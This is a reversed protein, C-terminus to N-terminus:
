TILMISVNNYMRAADELYTRLLRVAAEQVRLADEFDDEIRRLQQKFAPSDRRAEEVDVILM